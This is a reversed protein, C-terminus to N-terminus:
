SNSSNSSPRGAEAGSTPSHSSQCGPSSPPHAESVNLFPLTLPLQAQKEISSNQIKGLKKSKEETFDGQTCRPPIPPLTITM